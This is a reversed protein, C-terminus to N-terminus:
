PKPPSVKRLKERASKLISIITVRNVGVIKALEKQQIKVLKCYVVAKEQMTLDAKQSLAELTNIQAEPNSFSKKAVPRTGKRRPAIKEGRAVIAKYASAVAMKGAGTERAIQQFTKGTARLLRVIKKVREPHNKTLYPLMPNLLLSVEGRIIKQCLSIFETAKERSFVQRANAIVKRRLKKAEKPGLSERVAVLDKRVTPKSVKHKSSIQKISFGDMIESYTRKRREVISIPLPRRRAM